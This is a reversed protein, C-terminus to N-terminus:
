LSSPNIKLSEIGAVKIKLDIFNQNSNYMYKPLSLIDSLDSMSFSFLSSVLVSSAFLLWGVLFNLKLRLFKIKVIMLITSMVAIKVTKAVMAIM